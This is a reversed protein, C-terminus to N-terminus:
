LLKALVKADLGVTMEGVEQALRRGKEDTAVIRNWADLDAYSPFEWLALYHPRSGLYLDRAYLGVLRFQPLIKGFHDAFRQYAEAVQRRGIGPKADFEIQYFM